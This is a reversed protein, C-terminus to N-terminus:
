RHSWLWWTCWAAFSMTCAYLALREFPHVGPRDHYPEVERVEM